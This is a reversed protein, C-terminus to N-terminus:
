HLHPCSICEGGYSSLDFSGSASEGSASCSVARHSHDARLSGELFDGGGGIVFRRASAEALTLGGGGQRDSM